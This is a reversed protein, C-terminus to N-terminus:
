CRADVCENRGAPRRANRSRVASQRQPQIERQNRDFQSAYLDPSQFDIRPAGARWIDAVQPLPGGSPYQGPRANPGDLWANVYFRFTTNPRARRQWKTSMARTSGPWSSATRAGLNGRRRLSADVHRVNEHRQNALSGSAGAGAHGQAAPPVADVRQPVPGAFADNAAPSHDRSDGLVGVENEVQMM